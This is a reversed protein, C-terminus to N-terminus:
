MVPKQVKQFTSKRYSTFLYCHIDNRKIDLTNRRTLVVLTSGGVSLLFRVRKGCIAYKETKTCGDSYTGEIASIATYPHYLLPILKGADMAAM